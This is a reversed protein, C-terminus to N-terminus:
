YPSEDEPADPLEDASAAVGAAEVARAHLADRAREGHAVCLPVLGAVAAGRAALEELVARESFFDSVVRASAHRAVKLVTGEAPPGGGGGGGGDGGGGGGGGGGADISSVAYVDSTGGCGLREGLQIVVEGGQGGGGAAGPGCQHLRACLRELAGGGALLQHSAFLRLLASFGEPPPELAFNPPPACFDWGGLLPLPATEEVPCPAAGSFSAGPGPAGSRMRAIVVHVGDTAVGYAFLGDMADGRADAECCLKYMRRRLYTRAQRAAEKIFGPLKAEAM